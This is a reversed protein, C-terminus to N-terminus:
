IIGKPSNHVSSWKRPPTMKGEILQDEPGKTSKEIFDNPNFTQPKADSPISDTAIQMRPAPRTLPPQGGRGWPAGGWVPLPGGWAGRM